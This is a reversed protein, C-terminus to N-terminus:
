KRSKNEFVFHYPSNELKETVTNIQLSISFLHMMSEFEFIITQVITLEINVLIIMIIIKEMISCGM